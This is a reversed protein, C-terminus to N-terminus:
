FHQLNNQLFLNEASSKVQYQSPLSMEDSRYIQHGHVLIYNKLINKNTLM